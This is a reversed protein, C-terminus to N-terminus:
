LCHSDLLCLSPKIKQRTGGKRYKRIEELDCCAEPLTDAGGVQSNYTWLPDWLNQQRIVLLWGKM